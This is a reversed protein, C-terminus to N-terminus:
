NFEEEALDAQSIHYLLKKILKEDGITSIIHTGINDSYLFVFSIDNPVLNKLSDYLESKNLM